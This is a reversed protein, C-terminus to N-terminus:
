RRGGTERRLLVTLVLAGASAAAMVAFVPWVSSSVLLAIAIAAISLPLLVLVWRWALARQTPSRAAAPKLFLFYAAVPLSAAWLADVPDQDALAAAFFLVGAFIVLWGLFPRSEGM